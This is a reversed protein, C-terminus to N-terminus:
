GAASHLDLEVSLYWNTGTQVLKYWFLMKEKQIVYIALINEVSQFKGNKQGCTILTM